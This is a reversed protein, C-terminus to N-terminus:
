ALIENNQLFRLVRTCHTPNAALYRPVAEHLQTDTPELYIPLQADLHHHILHFPTEPYLDCLRCSADGWGDASPPLTDLDFPDPPPPRLLEDAAPPLPHTYAATGQHLKKLGM